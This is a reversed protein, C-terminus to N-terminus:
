QMDVNHRRSKDLNIFMESDNTRNDDYLLLKDLYVLKNEFNKGVVKREERCLM